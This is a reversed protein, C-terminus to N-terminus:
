GKNLYKKAIWLLGATDAGGIELPKQGHLLIGVGHEDDWTCGLDIGIFPVSDKSIPHIIISNIGLIKKLDSPNHVEPLYEEAQEELYETFEERIGPYAKYLAELMSGHVLKEHETFWKVLNIEDQNLPSNDRGEPAFIIRHVSARQTNSLDRIIHNPPHYGHWTPLEATTTWFFEDWTFEPYTPKNM